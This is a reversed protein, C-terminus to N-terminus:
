DEWAEVNGDRDKQGRPAASRGAEKIANRAAKFLLSKSLTKVNCPVKAAIDKVKWEPHESLIAIAVAVKSPGKRKSSTTAETSKGDSLTGKTPNGNTQSVAPQASLFDKMRNLEGDAQTWQSWLDAMDPKTPEDRSHKLISNRFAVLAEVPIHHVHQDKYRVITQVVKLLEEWTLLSVNQWAPYKDIPEGGLRVWVTKKCREIDNLIHRTEPSITSPKRCPKESM